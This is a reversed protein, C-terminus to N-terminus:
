VEMIKKEKSVTLEDIQIMIQDTLKQIAAQARKEQDESIAKQKVLSKFQANAERRHQRVTNRAQEADQKVVKVFDRRRAETLPPLPVRITTGATMPNLGLEASLIAKEIAAVQSKDWPSVLLTRADVVSITAIHQLPVVGGAAQNVRVAELLGPAARGARLKSFQTRLVEIAKEMHSKTTLQLKDIDHETQLTM